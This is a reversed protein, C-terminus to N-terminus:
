STRHTLLYPYSHECTESLPNPILLYQLDPNANCPDTMMPKPSWGYGTQDMMFVDFGAKALFEAWSYDKFPLDYDPVSPVTGGHVFLVVKKKKKVKGKKNAKVRERLFLVVEEGDNAPVTSVHPVAYDISLIDKKGSAFALQDTSIASFFFATLLVVLAFLNYRKNKM